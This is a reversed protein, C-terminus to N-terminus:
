PMRQVLDGLKCLVGRLFYSGPVAYQIDTLVGTRFATDAQSVLTCIRVLSLLRYFEIQKAPPVTGGADRYADLFANWGMLHTATDQVYGLDDAPNGIKAFEWDLISSVRGESVMINHLATDGHVLCRMGEALHLNRELASFGEEVIASHRGLADWNRRSLEIEARIREAMSSSAEIGLASTPITHIRAMERAIDAGLVADPPPYSFLNGVTRGAVLGLVMFPRGLVTGTAELAYPQPVTAGHRSAAVLIPYESAVVTSSFATAAPLDLRLILAKPVTGASDSLCAKLTQKSFGGSIVELSDVTVRRVSFVTALYEGLRLEDAATFGTDVTAGRRPTSVKQFADETARMLSTEIGALQKGCEIADQSGVKGLRVHADQLASVLARDNAVKGILRELAPQTSQM